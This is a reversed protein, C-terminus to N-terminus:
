CFQFTREVYNNWTQWFFFQSSKEAKKTRMEKGLLFLVFQQHKENSSFICVCHPPPLWCSVVILPQFFLIEFERCCDWFKGEVFLTKKEPKIKNQGSILFTWSERRGKITLIGFFFIFCSGESREYFNNIRMMDFYKKKRTSFDWRKNNQFNTKNNNNQTFWDSPQLFSSEINEFKWSNEIEWFNM